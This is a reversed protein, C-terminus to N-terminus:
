RVMLLSKLPLCVIRPDAVTTADDRTVLIGLPANNVAKEVFSRIGLTDRMPDIVRRYKVEIPVRKEGITLVYDVEPDGGRAPLHAVDLSPLSSFLYGVLSEAIHGALDHLHPQRDLEAPDLPITEQLWAARLAHDCLCLKDYGRGKKRMRIELPKVTRLLLSSDLFDLYHRIRQLGIGSQFQLQAERALTAPNPAQGIWRCAMRFVEELLQPDRKRGREGLRLDHQIVRKVVTENLHDAIEPWPVGASRHAFPYAGRESLAAFAADRIEAQRLASVRLSAWFGPELWDAWGNERQAPELGGFGRLAAIEVLRLPGVELTQIRGALSDRGKEIRLASSGTVLSSVAAHDALSKMQIDWDRLNQVEDFFLLAPEGHRAADNLNRGLITREYWDVIRLVPEDRPPIQKLSPLADFQVRLIRRPAIGQQLLREIIQEQLTTKGIQRPGRIVLIPALPDLLRSLLREFPWRKFPPTPRLPANVWWPNQRRLDEVFAPPLSYSPFLYGNAM